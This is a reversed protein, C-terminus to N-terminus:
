LLPLYLIVKASYNPSKSMDRMKNTVDKRREPNRVEGSIEQHKKRVRMEIKRNELPPYLSIQYNIRQM